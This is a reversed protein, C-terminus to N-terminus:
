PDAEIKRVTVSGYVPAGHSESSFVYRGVPADRFDIFLRSGRTLLPPGQLQGTDVLYALGEPSLSDSVFSVTHIRRDLTVFQIWEGTHIEVHPPVIHEVDRGGSLQVVHAVAAVESYPDMVAEVTEEPTAKPQIGCGVVAMCVLAGIPRVAYM